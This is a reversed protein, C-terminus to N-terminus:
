CPVNCSGRAKDRRLRRRGCCLAEAAAVLLLTASGPEPINTAAASTGVNGFGRQWDFFGAGGFDGNDGFAKQWMALDEDNVVGNRNFDGALSGIGTVELVVQNSQYDVNWFYGDPLLLVDFAGIVDDGTTIISFTNGINPQFGGSLNNLTVELTGALFAFRDITLRTYGSVPTTGGLNIQLIGEAM